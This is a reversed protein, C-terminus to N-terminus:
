YSIDFAVQLHVAYLYEFDPYCPFEEFLGVALYPSTFVGVGHAKRNM